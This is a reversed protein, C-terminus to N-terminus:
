FWSAVTALAILLMWMVIARWALGVASELYDADAEEMVGLEPRFELTGHRHV